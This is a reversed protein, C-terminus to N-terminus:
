YSEEMKFENYMVVFNSMPTLAEWPILRRLTKFLLERINAYATFESLSATM